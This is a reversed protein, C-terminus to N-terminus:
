LQPLLFCGRPQLWRTRSVRHFSMSHGEVTGSWFRIRGAQTHTSTAFARGQSWLGILSQPINSALRPAVKHAVPLTTPELFAWLIHNVRNGATPIPL